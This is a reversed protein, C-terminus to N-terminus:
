SSRRRCSNGAPGAKCIAEGELRPFAFALCVALGAFALVRRERNMDHGWSTEDAAAESDVVVAGEAAARAAHADEAGLRRCEDGPMTAVIKPDSNM